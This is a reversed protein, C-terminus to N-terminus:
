ANVFKYGSMKTSNCIGYEDAFVTAYTVANLKYGWGAGAWKGIKSGTILPDGETIMVYNCGSCQWACGEVYAKGNVTGTGWCHSVLEHYAKGNCVEYYRPKVTIPSEEGFYAAKTAAFSPVSFAFILLFVLVLSIVRRCSKKMM